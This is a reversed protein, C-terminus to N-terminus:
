VNEIYNFECLCMKRNMSLSIPDLSIASVLALIYTDRSHRHHFSHLTGSFFFPEIERFKWFGSGSVFVARPECYDYACRLASM